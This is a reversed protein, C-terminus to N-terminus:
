PGVTLKDLGSGCIIIAFGYVLEVLLLDGNGPLPLHLNRWYYCASEQDKQMM